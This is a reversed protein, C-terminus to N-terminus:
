TETKRQHNRKWEQILQQADEIQDPTMTQVLNELDRKAIKDGQQTALALWQYAILFDQPVKNERTAYLFGLDAQAELLGQSAARTYWMVAQEVNQKVGEGNLYLQGLAYQAPAMGQDAAKRFWVVAREVDKQAGRGERYLVGLNNQAGPHGQDAALQFWKIAENFDEPVGTGVNYMWGLTVQADLHGQEAALQYWRAAEQANRKIGKGENYLEGLAAQAGPHGKEAASHFINLATEYDGAELATVGEQYDAEVNQCGSTGVGLALWCGLMLISFAKKIYQIMTQSTIRDAQHNVLSFLPLFVYEALIVVPYPFKCSM